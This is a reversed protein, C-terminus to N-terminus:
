LSNPTSLFWVTSPHYFHELAAKSLTVGLIQHHCWMYRLGNWVVFWIRSSHNVHWSNKWTANESLNKDERALAMHTESTHTDKYWWIKKAHINSCLRGSESIISIQAKSITDSVTLHCDLCPNLLLIKQSKKLFLILANYVMVTCLLIQVIGSMM